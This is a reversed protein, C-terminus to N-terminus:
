NQTHPHMHAQTGTHTHIHAQIHISTHMYTYTRTGTHAQTSTHKHTHTRAQTSIHICMHAQTGPHMHAHLLSPVLPCNNPRDVQGESIIPAWAMFAAPKRAGAAQCIPRSRQAVLVTNPLCPGRGRGSEQERQWPTRNRVPKPRPSPLTSPLRLLSPVASQPPLCITASCPRAWGPKTQGCSALRGRQVGLWATRLIRRTPQPSCSFPMCATLEAAVGKIQSQSTPALRRKLAPGAGAPPWAGGEAGIHNPWSHDPAPSWPWPWGICARSYGCKGPCPPAWIM